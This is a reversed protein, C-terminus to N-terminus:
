ATRTIARVLHGFTVSDDTANASLKMWINATNFTVTDQTSEAAITVAASTLDTVATSESGTTVFKFGYPLTYTHPHDELMHAAGDWVIDHLTIKDNDSNSAVNDANLNTPTAAASQTATMTHQKHAITLTDTNPDTVFRLWKNATKFNFTDQTNEAVISGGSGPTTYASTDDIDENSITFTKFGYPLTWTHPHDELMHAAADWVIDHLVLKDSDLNSAVEDTNLNSARAASQEATM